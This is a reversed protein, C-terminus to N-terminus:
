QRPFIRAHTPLAKKFAGEPLRRRSRGCKRLELSIPIAQGRTDRRQSAGPRVVGTKLEELEGGVKVSEQAFPGGCGLGLRLQLLAQLGSPLAEAVQELFGFCKKFPVLALAELLLTREISLAPLSQLLLLALRFM